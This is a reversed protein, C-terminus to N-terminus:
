VVPIIHESLRFRQQEKNEWIYFPKENLLRKENLCEQAILTRDASLFDQQFLSQTASKM